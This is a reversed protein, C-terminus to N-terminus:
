QLVCADDEDPGQALTQEAAEEDWLPRLVQAMLRAKARRSAELVSQDYCCFSLRRGRLWASGATGDAAAAAAAAHKVGQLAWEVASQMGIRASAEPPVGALGTGISALALAKVGEREATAFVNRYTRQTLELKEAM